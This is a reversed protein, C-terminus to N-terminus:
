KKIWIPVKIKQSSKSKNPNAITENMYKTIETFMVDAKLAKNQLNKLVRTLAPTTVMDSNVPNKQGFRWFRRITQYYSEWSHSPFSVSHSCNQWNMGFQAIKAKTILNEINGRSFDILRSEKEEDTNSGSVQVAGPIIKELLDGEYNFQCWVVSQKGNNVLEAAKECRENVTSALEQKEERMGVAEEIFLKGNFPRDSKIEYQTEILPPLIFGSDDYGIDSPKRIARAWSSVWKWFDSEAHRKFRFKPVGGGSSAWKRAIDCTNQDNRFYKALMDMYGMEGLAESSTGLEPYDNPAATATCLLRYKMKRMFTTVNRQLVGKFHKICGSEDCVCGVFDDPNFYHLRQYNTVVIKKSYNGDRSVECDIGFKKGEAETQYSVALPTLILVHLNTHEVINQAWTLYQVTKGLGCDEFLASRGKKLAWTTLNKQFDFMTEPIFTPEFGYDGSLQTKNNIFDFYNM